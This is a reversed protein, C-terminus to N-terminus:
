FSLVQWASRGAAGRQQSAPELGPKVIIDYSPAQGVKSQVQVRVVQGRRRTEEIRANDDEIVTVQDPLPRRIDGRSAAAAAAPKDLVLPQAGASCPLALALCLWGPSGLRVALRSSAPLM